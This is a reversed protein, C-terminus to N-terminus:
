ETDSPGNLAVRRAQCRTASDAVIYKNQTTFNTQVLGDHGFRQQNQHQHRRLEKRPTATREIQADAVIARATAEIDTRFTARATPSMFVTGSATSGGRTVAALDCALTMFAM